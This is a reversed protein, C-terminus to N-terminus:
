VISLQKCKYYSGLPHEQSSATWLPGCLNFCMPLILQFTQYENIKLNEISYSVSFISGIYTWQGKLFVFVNVSYQLEFNSKRFHSTSNVYSGTKTIHVLIQFHQENFNLPLIMNKKWFSTTKNGDCRSCFKWCYSFVLCLQATHLTQLKASFPKNLYLTFITNKNSHKNCLLCFNRSM